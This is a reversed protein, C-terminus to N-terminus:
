AAPRVMEDLQLVTRWNRATVPSGVIRDLFAPTLRSKAVGGGFHIWIAAKVQIIQEALAARERLAAVAGPRPPRKSLLMLVRAPEQTSAELFPNGRVHAPWEAAGRVLAPIARGFQRQIARELDTELKAAPGPANFILNGSQIYTRVEKWGLNECLLRLESMLIMNHGSVNIGRLLGIYTYNLRKM